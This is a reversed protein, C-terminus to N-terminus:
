PKPEVDGESTAKAALNAAHDSRRQVKKSAALRFSDGNMELIHVHHRRTSKEVRSLRALTKQIAREELQKSPTRRPQPVDFRRGTSIELWTAFSKLSARYGKHRHAFGALNKEEIEDVSQAAIAGLFRQAAALYLHETREAIAKPRSRLWLRYADTIPAWPELSVKEDLTKLRRQEADRAVATPDRREGAFELLDGVIGKHRRLTEAGFVELLAAHTVKPPDDIAEGVRKLFAAANYIRAPINRASSINAIRTAHKELVQALWLFKFGPRLRELAKNAQRKRLCDRCAGTGKGALEAGCDPCAHTAGNVCDTCVFRLPDSASDRRRYRRCVTCTSHTKENRCSLCLWSGEGGIRSLQSSLKGCSECTEKPRFYPACSPCAVGNVTKYGAKEPVPKECRVCLRTARDCAPCIPRVEWELARAPSGCRSCKTPKFERVYCASCWDRGHLTRHANAIVRGCASCTRANSPVFFPRAIRMRAM